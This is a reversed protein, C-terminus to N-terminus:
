IKIRFYVVKKGISEAYKITQWTGGNEIGDWVALLVDCNDVMYKDRLIYNRAAYSDAYFIVDASENLFEEMRNFYDKKFAYVNMLNIGKEKATLAFLQDVGAAMGNICLDPKYEEIRDALWKKIEKEQGRLRQPRHGTVALKM